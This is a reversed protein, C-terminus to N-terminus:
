AVQNLLSLYFTPECSNRHHIAFSVMFLRQPACIIAASKALLLGFLLAIVASKILLPVCFLAFDVLNYHCKTSSNPVLLHALFVFGCM